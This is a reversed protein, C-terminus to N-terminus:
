SNVKDAPLQPLRFTQQRSISTKNFNPFLQFLPTKKLNSQSIHQFNHHESARKALYEQEFQGPTPVLLAHKQCFFLDMLTSYGSRCVIHKSHKILKLQVNAECHPLITINGIQKSEKNPQGSLITVKTNSDEFQTIIIDELQTRQPEPGSLMVLVDAGKINTDPSNISLRSCIGIFRTNQHITRSLTGTLNNKSQTDPIWCEDFRNILIRSIWNSLPRLPAWLRGLYPQTQHTIIVSATTPHYLGYRNDSIVLNIQHKRILSQLKKHEERSAKLLKNTQLLLRFWQHSSKSLRVNFGPLNCTDLKPFTDKLIDISPSEGALIVYHGQKLLADVIPVLRTAHGLGWNLPSVLIRRHATAESM